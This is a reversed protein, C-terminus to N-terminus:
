AQAGRLGVRLTQVELRGEPGGPVQLEADHVVLEAATVVLLVLLQHSPEVPDHVGKILASVRVTGAKNHLQEALYVRACDFTVQTM